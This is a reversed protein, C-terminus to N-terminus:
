STMVQQAPRDDYNNYDILQLANRLYMIPKLNKDNYISKNQRINLLFNLSYSVACTLRKGFGFFFRFLSTTAVSHLAKRYTIRYLLTGCM